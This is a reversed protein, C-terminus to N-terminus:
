QSKPLVGALRLEKKAREIEGELARQEEPHSEFQLVKCVVSLGAYVGVLLVAAVPLAISVVPAAERPM